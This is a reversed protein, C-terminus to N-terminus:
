HGLRRLKTEALAVVRSVRSLEGELELYDQGNPDTHKQPVPRIEALRRRLEKRRVEGEKVIRPM